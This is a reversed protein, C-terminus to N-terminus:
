RWIVERPSIKNEHFGFMFSVTKGIEVAPEKLEAGNKLVELCRDYESRFQCYLVKERILILV